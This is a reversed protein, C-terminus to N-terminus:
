RRFGIRLRIGQKELAIVSDGTLRKYGRRLALRLDNGSVAALTAYGNQSAVKQIEFVMAWQDGIRNGTPSEGEGGIAKWFVKIDDWHTRMFHTAETILDNTRLPALDDSNEPVHLLEIQQDQREGGETESTNDQEEVM